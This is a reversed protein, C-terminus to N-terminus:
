LIWVGVVQLTILIHVSYHSLIQIVQMLQHDQPLVSPPFPLPLPPPLHILLQWFFFSLMVLMYPLSPLPVSLSTSSHMSTSTLLIDSSSLHTISSSDCNQKMDTFIIFSQCNNIDNGTDTINTYPTTDNGFRNSVHVSISWTSYLILSQVNVSIPILTNPAIDDIDDLTVNIQSSNLPRQCYDRQLLTYTYDNLLSINCPATVQYHNIVLICGYNM